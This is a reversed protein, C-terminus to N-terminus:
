QEAKYQRFLEIAKIATEKNQFYVEGVYQVEKDRGYSYKEGDSYIHYPFVRDSPSVDGHLHHAIILLASVDRLQKPLIEQHPNAVYPDRSGCEKWHDYVKEWTLKQVETSSSDLIDEIRDILMEGLTGRKDFDICLKEWRESQDSPLVYRYRGLYIIYGNPNRELTITIGEKGAKLTLSRWGDGVNDHRGMVMQSASKEVLESKMMKDWLRLLRERSM